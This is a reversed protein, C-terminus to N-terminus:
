TAVYQEFVSDISVHTRAIADRAHVRARPGFFGPHPRPPPARSPIRGGRIGPDGCRRDVEPAPRPRRGGRPIFIGLTRAASGSAAMIAATSSSGESSSAAGSAPPLAQRSPGDVQKRSSCPGFAQVAAPPRQSRQRGYKAPPRKLAATDRCPHAQRHLRSPQVPTAPTSFPLLQKQALADDGLVCQPCARGAEAQATRAVAVAGGGAAAVHRHFDEIELTGGAAGSDGGTRRGRGM